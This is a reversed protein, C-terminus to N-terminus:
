SVLPPLQAICHYMCVHWRCYKIYEVIQLPACDYVVYSTISWIVVDFGQFLAHRNTDPRKGPQNSGKQVHENDEFDIPNNFVVQNMVHEEEKDDGLNNWKSQNYPRGHEFMM